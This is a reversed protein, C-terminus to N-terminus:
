KLPAHLVAAGVRIVGCLPCNSVNGESSDYFDINKQSGLLFTAINM